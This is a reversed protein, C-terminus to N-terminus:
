NKNLTNPARNNSTYINIITINDQHILREMSIFHGEKDRTINKTKPNTKLLSFSCENGWKEVKSSRIRYNPFGPSWVNYNFNNYWLLM